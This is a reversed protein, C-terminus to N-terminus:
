PEGYRVKLLCFIQSSSLFASDLAFPGSEWSLERLDKQASLALPSDGPQAKGLTM